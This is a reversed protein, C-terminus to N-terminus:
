GNTPQKRSSRSQAIRGASVALLLLGVLLLISGANGGVDAADFIVGLLILVGGISGWLSALILYSGSVLDRSNGQVRRVRNAGWMAIRREGPVMWHFPLPENQVM